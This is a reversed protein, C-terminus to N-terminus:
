RGFRRMEELAPDDSGLIQVFPEIERHGPVTSLKWYLLGCLPPPDLEVNTERLARLALARETPDAPQDGWVWLEREEGTYVLSFGSGKWPEITAGAHRAYGIETFVVGRDAIGQERRFADLDAFVRRWGEALLRYLEEPSGAPETAERLKFYANIGILDLDGWFGVDRYQDFNAAYTLRGGYLGRVEGILRRWHNELRARRRNMVEVAGEGLGHTMSEAWERYTGIEADLYAELTEFGYEGRAPLDSSAIRDEVALLERKRLEQQGADLYWRELAPLTELPVTSTLTSLESGVAFLDVGEREAIRAWALVFERYLEFWADVGDDTPPMIMGHWLFRNRPFAHDLAVRPILVVHLGRRKAGRIEALVADENEEWWLHPTDWDGQKAYVTTSVTNLGAEELADFWVEHDPENVQIGGILFPEPATCGTSVVAAAALAM